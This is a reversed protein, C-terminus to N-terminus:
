MWPPLVPLTRGDSTEGYLVHRLVGRRFEVARQAAIRDKSKQSQIFKPAVRDFRALFRDCREPETQAGVRRTWFERPTRVELGADLARARLKTKDAISVGQLSYGENTILPARHDRALELLLDDCGDGKIDADRDPLVDNRWLSLVHDKLLYISLQIHQWEVTNKVEPDVLKTLIRVLEHHLGITRANTVHLFWGLLTAERSRIRRFYTDDNERGPGAKTWAAMLDTM